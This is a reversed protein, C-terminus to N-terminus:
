IKRLIDMIEKHIDAEKKMGDLIFYNVGFKDKVFSLAEELRNQHSMMGDIGISDELADSKKASIRKIYEEKPIKLMFVVNPLTGSMASLNMHMASNWDMKQYAMGSIFSRDSIVTRKRNLAPNVIQSYHEARDALFLFVRANDSLESNNLLIDRLEKGITTNSGPEKTFVPALGNMMKSEDCFSNKLMEIQTTKGCTDIGEFVILM